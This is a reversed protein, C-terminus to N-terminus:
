RGSTVPFGERAVRSIRLEDIAGEYAYYPTQDVGDRVRLRGGFRTLWRPDFSNGLLLPAPSSRIRASLAYQSDLRGDIFFRVM